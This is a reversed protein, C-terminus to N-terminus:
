GAWYTNVFLIINIGFLLTSALIWSLQLYQNKISTALIYIPFLVLIYRGISMFTGTSLPVFVTTLMYIGYSTRLRKFVFITVLLVFAVFLVDISFNVISPHSFFVFHEKNLQFTRGWRYEV